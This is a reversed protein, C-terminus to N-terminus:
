DTPTTAFSASAETQIGSRNLLGLVTSGTGPGNLLQQEEFYGLQYLLRNNIESVLFDADEIFEDTLKIWGAIKKLADVVATPAVFHIQPKAAGEAVTSYNGEMAGEVLYS